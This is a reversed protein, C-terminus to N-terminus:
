TAGPPLDKCLPCPELAALEEPTLAALQAPDLLAHQGFGALARADLLGAAALAELQERLLARLEESLARALEPDLKLGAPLAAGTAGLEIGLSALDLGPPLKSALEGLDFSATALAGLAADLSAELAGDPPAETSALAAADALAQDANQAADLAENAAKEIREGLRAISEFTAEPDESRAAEDALRALTEELERREDPPFTIVEELAALKERVRELSPEFLDPPPGSPGNLAQVPVLLVAAVFTAAFGVQRASAAGDLRPLADGQALQREVDRAWRPDDFEVATVISGRGGAHTDLWAAAAHESPVRRWAVWAAAVPVLALPALALAAQGVTLGAGVRLVLALAGLGFAGWLLWRAGLRVSGVWGLRRRLARIRLALQATM